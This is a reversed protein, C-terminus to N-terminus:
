GLGVDMAMMLAFGALTAFAMLEGRGDRQSEPVLEAVAVYIMAGAAFSLMYPLLQRVSLVLAAGVVGALPEM